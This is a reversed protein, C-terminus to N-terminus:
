EEGPGAAPPAAEALMTINVRRDATAGAVRSSRDVRFSLKIYRADIGVMSLNFLRKHAFPVIGDVEVWDRSEPALRSNAVAINFEGSAAANENIVTFRDLSAGKPLPIIFTTQGEQLNCRIADPGAISAPAVSGVAELNSIPTVRGDPTVCEIKEAIRTSPDAAALPITSAPIFCAVIAAVALSASGGFWGFRSANM